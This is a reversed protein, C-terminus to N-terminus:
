GSTGADDGPAFMARGTEPDSIIDRPKPPSCVIRRGSRKEYAVRARIAEGGNSAFSYLGEIFARLKDHPLHGHRELIGGDGHLREVLNAKM